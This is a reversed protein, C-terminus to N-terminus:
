EEKGDCGEGTVVGTTATVETPQKQERHGDGGPTECKGSQV